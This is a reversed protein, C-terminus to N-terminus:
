LSSYNRLFGVEHLILFGPHRAKVERLLKVAKLRFHLSINLVVTIVCVKMTISNESIESVFFDVSTKKQVHM